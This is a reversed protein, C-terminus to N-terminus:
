SPYVVATGCPSVCVSTGYEDSKNINLESNFTDHVELGGLSGYTIARVLGNSSVASCAVEKDYQLEHITFMVSSVDIVQVHDDDCTVMLTNDKNWLDIGFTPSPLSVEIEKEGSYVGYGYVMKGTDTSFFIRKGDKSFKLSRPDGV